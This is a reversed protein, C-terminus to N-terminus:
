GATDNIASWLEGLYDQSHVTDPITRTLNLVRVSPRSQPLLLLESGAPALVLDRAAQRRGPAAQASPALLGALLATVLVRRLRVFSDSSSFM